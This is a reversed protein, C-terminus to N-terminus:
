ETNAKNELMFLLIEMGECCAESEDTFCAFVTEAPIPQRRYQEITQVLMEHM